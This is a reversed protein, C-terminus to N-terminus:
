TARATPKPRSAPIRAAMRAFQRAGVYGYERFWTWADGTTEEVPRTQYGLEASARRSSYNKPRRALAIAASNVDPEQGTWWTRLDGARGAVLLMVPGASALPRRSGAVEAFLRWAELYSMTVGALIYRRGSRGRDVAALIGQAVDRVDCISLSGRPAFHARGRAVELLMRGSSPRWDWPGLMFAPNVIVGDLGDAVHELVLQEAARKTLVYPVPLPKSLPTEEDTVAGGRAVGLADCSSVHLLRAGAAKAAEAVHRTGEVNIRRHQDLRSRGLQVYGASHIVTSVSQCARRVSAPDTIDGTVTEVDLGRLPRPDSTARVLVRVAGGRGLLMRVVNNGLLGTAGTVLTRSSKM